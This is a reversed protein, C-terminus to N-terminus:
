RPSGTFSDLLDDLFPDREPARVADFQLGVAAAVRLVLGLEASSKGQEFAIVWQRSVGAREALQAQSLGAQRRAHRVLAGADRPTNFVMTDAYTSLIAKDVYSSMPLIDGISSMEAFDDFPSM